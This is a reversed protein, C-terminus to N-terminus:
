TLASIATELIDLANNMEEQSITLPPALTLVSGCSVKFSLGRELCAYLVAEAEDCAPRSARILEVGLLLGVGRVDGILAYQRQMTRLRGLAYAGLENARLLLNEEDIVEIAALAAAAGVPSKEHTYHGLAIDGAVDLDERAIMAAMPFVAGGLGKGIVLIDPAVGTHECAFFKGTRGLCTPIEDFILLAGHRDCIERVRPWYGPPPQCVATCRIPEAIFAGIDGETEFVYEVYDTSAMANTSKVGFASGPPAPPPVHICGPLLPGIGKRFVAEGGISIADLSAGHFSDWWSVTKFRGTTKRMLKLAMGLAATGGPAFLIKGLNGSARDALTKALAIAPENTYRRPCFPLTDLQRKIAEIVRPHGYGVQHVSNGHFDLLRKGSATSLCSGDAGTVVDLCPTSLSQHLFYRSDEELIARTTEDLNKETWARRRPSLNIDGESRDPQDPM